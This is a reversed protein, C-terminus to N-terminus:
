IQLIQYLQLGDVEHLKDIPVPWFTGSTFTTFCATLPSQIPSDIVLDETLERCSLLTLMLGLQVSCPIMVVPSACFVGVSHSHEMFLKWKQAQNMGVVTLLHGLSIGTFCIASSILKRSSIIFNCPRMTCRTRAHQLLLTAVLVTSLYDMRDSM